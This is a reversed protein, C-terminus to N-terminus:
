QPVKEVEQKRTAARLECYRETGLESACPIDLPDMGKATLARATEHKLKNSEYTCSSISGISLTAAIAIVLVELDM